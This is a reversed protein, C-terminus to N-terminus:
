HPLHPELIQYLTAMAEVASEAIAPWEPEPSDYGGSVQSSLSIQRTIGQMPGNGTIGQGFDHRRGDDVPHLTEVLHDYLPVGEKQFFIQARVEGRNLIFHFLLGERSQVFLRNPRAFGGCGDPLALGQEAMQLYRSKIANAFGRLVRTKEDDIGHAQIQYSFKRKLFQRWPGNPSDFLTREVEEGTKWAEGWGSAGCCAELAKCYSDYAEGTTDPDPLGSATLQIGTEPFLLVATKATWQDLFFADPKERLFFLLKTYFSVGLGPISRAAKKAFAFDDIRTASRSRLAGVLRDLAEGGDELSRRYNGFDRAGWAMVCAYATLSGVELNRCVERLQRRTLPKAGGHPIKERQAADPRHGEPLEDFYRHPSRGVPGDEPPATYYRAPSNQRLQERMAPDLEIGKIRYLRVLDGIVALTEAHDPGYITEYGERATRLHPAAKDIDADALLFRGLLHHGKLTTPHCEGLAATSMALTDKLLQLLEQNHRQIEADDAGDIVEKAGLVTALNQAAGLTGTDHPGFTKLFSAHVLRAEREAEAHDELRSLCTSLDQKVTFIERLEGTGSAEWGALAEALKESAERLNGIKEDEEPKDRLTTAWAALCRLREPHKPELLLRADADLATYGKLASEFNEQQRFLHAIRRRVAFVSSHSAGHSRVLSQRLREFLVRSEEWRGREALFEALAELEEPDEEDKSKEILEPLWASIQDEWSILDTRGLFDRRRNAFHKRLCDRLLPIAPAPGTFFVGADQDGFWAQLTQHFFVLGGDREVVFSGLRRSASSIDEISRHLVEAALAIPLPGPATLILRVIPQIAHPFEAAGIRHQFNAQYVGHLLNAGLDLHRLSDAAIGGAELAERLLHLFLVMGESRAVLENRLTTRDDEPLDKFDARSLIKQEAYTGLDQLNAPDDSRIEFPNFRKLYPDVAQDPRSTVVFGIWKPLDPFTNGVLDALENVGNNLRAEDLADILIVLKHERPPLDALPDHILNTFLDPVQWGALRERAERIPEPTSDAHLGLKRLLKSRYDPLRLALEFALSKLAEAPDSLDVSRANCFWSGVVAARYRTAFQVALATKGFGPGAKIRFARSQPQHNLWDEFARFCWERGIFDGVKESFLSDFCHPALAKRLVESEGSFRVAEGGELRQIIRHLNEEYFREYALPDPGSKLERWRSLDPWQLHDISAPISELPVQEVLLSYVIGFRNMALAIENRCVGPDRTSHISLFAIALESDQIGQVIRGRWDDWLGIEKWDVWVEHGRKELDQTIREVLERNHDHGYSIFIKLPKAALNALPLVPTAAAPADGEFREECVRCEWQSAKVKWVTDPSSCHHCIPTM